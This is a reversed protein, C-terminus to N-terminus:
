VHVRVSQATVCFATEYMEPQLVSSLLLCVCLSRGEERSSLMLVCIMQALSKIAADELSGVYGLPLSSWCKFSLVKSWLAADPWGWATWCCAIVRQLPVAGLGELGAATLLDLCLVTAVTQFQHKFLLSEEHRSGWVAWQAGASLENEAVLVKM